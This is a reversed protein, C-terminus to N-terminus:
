QSAEKLLRNALRRLIKCEEVAERKTSLRDHLTGSFGGVETVFPSNESAIKMSDLLTDMDDFLDSIRQEVLDVAHQLAEASVEM